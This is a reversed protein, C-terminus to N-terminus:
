GIRWIRMKDGTTRQTFKFGISRTLNATLGARQKDILISQGIKMQRATKYLEPDVERSEPIPIDDEILYKRAPLDAMKVM